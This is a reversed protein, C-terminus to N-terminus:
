EAPVAGIAQRATQEINIKQLQAVLAPDKLATTLDPLTILEAYNQFSAPKTWDKDRLLHQVAPHQIIARANPDRHLRQWSDPDRQILLLSCLASAETSSIPDTRNLINGIWGTTLSHQLRAFLPSDQLLSTKDARIGEDIFKMQSMAGTWRVGMALVWILVCAPLISLGASQFRMGQSSPVGAGPQVVNALLRRAIQHVIIGGLISSIIVANPPVSGLWKTLYPPSNKFVIYGAIFGLILCVMGLMQKAIGRVFALMMFAVLIGWGSTPLLHDVSFLSSLDPM